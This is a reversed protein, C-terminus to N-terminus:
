LNAIDIDTFPLQFWAMANVEDLLLPHRRIYRAQEEPSSTFSQTPTSVSGSSWGGESVFVPITKEEILRSYYNVPLQDPDETGFYPYSSLGLEEMFPFDAFDQAIGVFGGGGLTGWAVDVQVSVSLPVTRGRAKLEAAVDNAAQRVGQYIAPSSALRILNTELALGLHDPNLLSDMVVVFRRYVAQIDAEAISKGRMQLATADAARDLGNQPDIYVWLKMNKSRYFQVLGAYNRNVYDVANVGSLLSDWPVETNVIAADSRATWLNLSQIILNFDDFRPASNGFGMRYSRTAPANDSEGCSLCSLIPILILCILRM